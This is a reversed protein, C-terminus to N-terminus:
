EDTVQIHQEEPDDFDNIPVYTINWIKSAVDFEINTIAVFNETAIDPLANRIAEDPALTAGDPKEVDVIEIKGITGGAPYSEEVGGKYWVRVEQGIKVDNPADRLNIADYFQSVGGTDSFDEAEKAVVLISSEGREVVYGHIDPSAGYKETISCAALLLVVLLLTAIKRM